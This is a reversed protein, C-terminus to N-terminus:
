QPKASPKAIAAGQRALPLAIQTEGNEDEFVLKLPLQNQHGRGPGSFAVPGYVTQLNTAELAARIGAADETIARDIADCILEAGAFAAAQFRNKLPPYSTAAQDGPQWAAPHILRTQPTSAVTEAAAAPFCGDPLAITTPPLLELRKGQLWFKRTMDPKLVLMLLEPRREKVLNLLDYFNSENDRYTEWINLDLKLGAVLDRLRRSNRVACANEGHIIGISQIPSPRNKIFERLCNNLASRTRTLRFSSVSKANILNDQDAGVIIYPLGADEAARSATFACPNLPTGAAVLTRGESALMTVLTGATEPNSASDLYTVTFDPKRGAADIFAFGLEFGSQLEKGLSAFDGSLPLLVAVQQGAAATFTTTATEPTSPTPAATEQAPVPIALGFLALHAIFMLALAEQLLQLRLKKTATM